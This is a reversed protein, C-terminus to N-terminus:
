AAAPQGLDRNRAAHGGIGDDAAYGVAEHAAVVGEARLPAAPNGRKQKRNCLSVTSKESFRECNPSIGVVDCIHFILKSHPEGSM